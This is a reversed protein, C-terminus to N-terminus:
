KLGRILVIAKKSGPIAGGIAITNNEADIKVVKLNKVTVQEHGM